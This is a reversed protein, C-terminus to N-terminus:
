ETAVPESATTERTTAEPTDEVLGEAAEPAEEVGVAAEDVAPAEAVPKVELVDDQKIVAQKRSLSMNIGLMLLLFAIGFYITLRRLPNRAGIINDMGPVGMAAIGGGKSEQLLILAIICLACFGFLIGLIM